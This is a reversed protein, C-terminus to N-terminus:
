GPTVAVGGFVGTARVTLLPAEPGPADQADVAIGGVYASGEHEVRWGRPVTVSVGGFMARAELKAGPALTVHRLDLDVGGFWAIISGGVFATSRSELQIGDFIAVLSLEDSSEDGRSPLWARMAAAATALGALFGLKLVLVTIFWRRM